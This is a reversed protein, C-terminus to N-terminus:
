QFNSIKVCLLLKIAGMYDDTRWALAYDAYMGQWEECFLPKGEVKQGLSVSWFKSHKHLFFVGITKKMKWKSCSQAKAKDIGQDIHGFVKKWGYKATKHSIKGM